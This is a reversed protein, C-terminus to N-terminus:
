ARPLTPEEACLAEVEGVERPVSETMNEHGEPTILIDDEIRIWEHDKSYKYDEPYM